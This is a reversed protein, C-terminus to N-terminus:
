EGVGQVLSDGAGSEVGRRDEGAGAVVGHDESGGNGGRHEEDAGRAAEGVVWLFGDALLVNFGREGRQEVEEKVEVWM